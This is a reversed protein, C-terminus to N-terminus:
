NVDLKRRSCGNAYGEAYAERFPSHKWPNTSRKGQFGQVFGRHKAAKILEALRDESMATREPM